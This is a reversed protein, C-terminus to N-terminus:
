KKRARLALTIQVVFWAFGAIPLLLAAVDSVAHLAPLWWWSTMAVGAVVGHSPEANM